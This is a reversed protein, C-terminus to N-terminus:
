FMSLTAIIVTLGQESLLQCFQSYKVSLALRGTRDYNESLEAELSFLQSLEDGHLCVVNSSTRRLHKALEIALSSKGSGSLGTIWIVRGVSDNPVSSTM